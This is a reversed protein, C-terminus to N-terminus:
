TCPTVSFLTKLAKEGDLRLKVINVTIRTPVICMFPPFPNDIFVKM